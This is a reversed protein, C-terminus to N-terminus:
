RDFPHDINNIIAMGSKSRIKAIVKALDAPEEPFLWNAFRNKAQHETEGPDVVFSREYQQTKPNLALKLALVLSSNRIFPDGMKGMCDLVIKSLYPDNTEKKLQTRAKAADMSEGKLPIVIDEKYKSHGLYVVTMGPFGSTSLFFENAFQALMPWYAMGNLDGNVTTCLKAIEPQVLSFMTTITDFAITRVGNAYLEAIVPFMIKKNFDRIGMPIRKTQGDPTVSDTGHEYCLDLVNLCPVDLGVPLGCLMGDKDYSVVFIDDALRLGPEIKSEDKPYYKSLRLFARSKGLGSPGYLLITLAKLGDSAKGGYRALMSVPATNSTETTELKAM